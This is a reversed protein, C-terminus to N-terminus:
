GIQREGARAAQVLNPFGVGMLFTPVGIFLITWCLIDGLSYLSVANVLGAFLEPAPHFSIQTSAALLHRIGPLWSFHGLVTLPVATAIGIGFQNLMFRRLSNHSGASRAAWLSGAGVGALYLALIVCLRLRHRAASDQLGPM